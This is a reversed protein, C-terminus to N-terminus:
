SEESTSTNPDDASEAPALNHLAKRVRRAYFDTVEGAKSRRGHTVACVAIQEGDPSLVELHGTGFRRVTCAAQAIERLLRRHSIPM